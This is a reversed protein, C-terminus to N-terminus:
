ASLSRQGSHERAARSRRAVGLCLIFSRRRISRDDGNSRLTRSLEHAHMPGQTLYSLGGVARRYPAPRVHQWIEEAGLVVFAARAVQVTGAARQGDAVAPGPM